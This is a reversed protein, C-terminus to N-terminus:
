VEKPERRHPNKACWRKFCQYMAPVLWPRFGCRMMEQHAEQYSWGENFFRNLAIVFGTREHGFFCHVYVPRRDADQLVRVVQMVKKFRLRFIPSMPTHVMEIGHRRAQERERQRNYANTSTCDELNLITYVGLSALMTFAAESFPHGGRYVGNALRYFNKVPAELPVCGPAPCPGPTPPPIHRVRPEFYHDRETTPTTPRTAVLRHPRSAQRLDDGGM